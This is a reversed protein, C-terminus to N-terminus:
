LSQSRRSSSAPPAHPPALLSPSAQSATSPSPLFLAILKRIEEINEQTVQVPDNFSALEWPEQTTFIQHMHQSLYQTYSKFIKAISSVGGHLEIVHTGPASWILHFLSTGHVAIVIDANVFAQIQEALSCEEMYIPHIRLLSTLDTKSQDTLARASKRDIFLVTKKAGIVKDKIHLYHKLYSKAHGMWQQIQEDTSVLTLRRGPYRENCNHINRQSDLNGGYIITDFHIYRHTVSREFVIPMSSLCEHLVTYSGNYKGASYDVHTFDWQILRAIEEPRYHDLWLERLVFLRYNRTSLRQPDYDHLISLLALTLEYAHGWCSHYTNMIYTPESVNYADAPNVLPIDTSFARNELCYLPINKCFFTREELDYLVDSLITPLIEM